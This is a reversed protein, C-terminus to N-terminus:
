TRSAPDPLGVSASLGGLKPSRELRIEGGHMQVIDGIIALGLGHGPVAEDLRGGRLTLAAASEEPIGPGDDDISLQLGDRGARLHLEVRGAAWKAANDLLNGILELMDDQDFALREPANIETTIALDREAYLTRIGDVLDAIDAHPRFRRGPSREGALRARRLEREILSRMREAQEAVPDHPGERYLLILNLPSKLAHALNGLANRSRALHDRWGDILANLERVLPRVEAPVSEGLRDVEGNALRQVDARVADIRRFGLRLLRHQALLLVGIGLLSLLLAAILFARLEEHLPRLDETVAVTFADEGRAYGAGWVLLRQGLPGERRELATAGAPLPAVEFPHDWLSRSRLVRGDAFRVVFYHGSFPQQFIPPLPRDVQSTQADLGAVLAEADHALRTAAFHEAARALMWAGAATLMLLVTLVLLGLTWQLSRELSGTSSPRRCETPEM